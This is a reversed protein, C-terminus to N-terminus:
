NPLLEVEANPNFICKGLESLVNLVNSECRKKSFNTKSESFVATHFRLYINKDNQAFQKLAV